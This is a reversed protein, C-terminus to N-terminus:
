GFFHYFNNKVKIMPYMTVGKSCRMTWIRSKKARAKILPRLIIM